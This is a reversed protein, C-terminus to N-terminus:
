PAIILQSANHLHRGPDIAIRKLEVTGPHEGGVRLAVVIRLTDVVRHEDHPVAAVRQQIAGVVPEDLVRHPRLKTPM